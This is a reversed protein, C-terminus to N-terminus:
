LTVGRALEMVYLTELEHECSSLPYTYRIQYPEGIRNFNKNAEEGMLARINRKKLEKRNEKPDVLIKLAYFQNDSLNKAKYITGQGGSGLFGEVEYTIGNDFKIQTGPNLPM